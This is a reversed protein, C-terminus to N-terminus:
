SATEAADAENHGSSREPLALRLYKKEVMEQGYKDELRKIIFHGRAMDQFHNIFLLNVGGGLIAGVVPLSKVAM